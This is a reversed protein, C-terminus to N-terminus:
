ISSHMPQFYPINTGNVATVRTNYQHEMKSQEQVVHNTLLLSYLHPRPRPPIPSSSHHATLLTRLAPHQTHPLLFFTPNTTGAYFYSSPFSSIDPHMRYQINLLQVPHGCEMMRAMMSRGYNLRKAQHSIVTSPLQQPDSTSYILFYFLTSSIQIVRNSCMSTHYSRPNHTIGGIYLNSNVVATYNQLVEICQCAEDVIGVPFSSGHLKSSGCTSVTCFVM